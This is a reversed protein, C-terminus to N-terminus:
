LLYGLKVLLLQVMKRTVRRQANSDNGNEPGLIYSTDEEALIIENYRREHIVEPIGKSFNNIDSFSIQHAFDNKNVKLEAMVADILDNESVHNFLTRVQQRSQAASLNDRAFWPYAIQPVQELIGVAGGFRIKNVIDVYLAVESGRNTEGFLTKIKARKLNEMVAAVQGILPMDSHYFDDIHELATTPISPILQRLKSRKGDNCDGLTNLVSSTWLTKLERYEQDNLQEDLRTYEPVKVMMFHILNTIDRTNAERPLSTRIKGWDGFREQGLIYIEGRNLQNPWLYLQSEEQTLERDLLSDDPILAPANPARRRELNENEIWHLKYDLYAEEIDQRYVHLDVDPFSAQNLVAYIDEKFLRNFNVKQDALRPLNTTYHRVAEKAETIKQPLMTIDNYNGHTAQNFNDLKRIARAYKNKAYRTNKYLDINVLAVRMMDELQIFEPLASYSEVDFREDLIKQSFRAYIDQVVSTKDAQSLLFHNADNSVLNLAKAYHNVVAEQLEIMHELGDISNDENRSMRDWAGIFEPSAVRTPDKPYQRVFRVYQRPIDGAEETIEDDPDEDVAIPDPEIDPIEVDRDLDGENHVIETAESSGSNPKPDSDGGGCGSLLFSSFIPVILYRTSYSM